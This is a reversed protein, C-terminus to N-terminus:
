IFAIPQPAVPVALALQLTQTYLDSLTTPAPSMAQPALPPNPPPVATGPNVFRAMPGALQAATPPAAPPPYLAAASPFNLLETSKVGKSGTDGDQIQNLPGLGSFPETLTVLKPTVAAVTYFVPTSGTPADESIQSAFQMVSGPALAGTQDVSTPVDASGTTVFFDGALQPSSAGQQALAFYSPPLYALPRTILLQARDTLQQFQAQTATPPIAPPAASLECLTIQGVSNGFGGTSAVHMDVILEIDASGPALAVLAPRKGQMPVIVTFPGAGTSDRYTLSVTRAGSGPPIPPVTATGATDLPSTSYIAAITAPAAAVNVSGGDATVGTYPSTLTIAAPAVGLPAVVYYVGIQSEFEVTNGPSLAPTQNASTVVTASGNTTLFSGALTVKRRLPYSLTPPTSTTPNCPFPPPALPAGVASTMNLTLTRTASTADHTTVDSAVTLGFMQGLVPDTTPDEYLPVAALKTDAAAPGISTGAVLVKWALVIQDAM